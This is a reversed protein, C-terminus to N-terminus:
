ATLPYRNRRGGRRRAQPPRNPRAAAPLWQRVPIRRPDRRRLRTLVVEDTLLRYLYMGSPVPRGVDDRGNWCLRHYGAQQPGAVM